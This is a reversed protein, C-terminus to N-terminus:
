PINPADEAKRLKHLISTTTHIFVRLSTLGAKYRDLAIDFEKIINDINPREM